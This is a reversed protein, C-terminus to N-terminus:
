FFINWNEREIKGCITCRRYVGEEFTKAKSLDNIGYENKFVLLEGRGGSHFNKWRHGYVKCIEGSSGLRLILTETTDDVNINVKFSLKLNSDTPSLNLPQGYNSYAVYWLFIVFAFLSVLGIKHETKM